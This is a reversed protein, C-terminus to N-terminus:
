PAAIGVEGVVQYSRAANPARWTVIVVLTVLLPSTGCASTSVTPYASISYATGGVNVTTVHPVLPAEPSTTGCAAIAAGTAKLYYTTSLGVLVCSVNSDSCLPDATPDLGNQLSDFPLAEAEYVATSILSTAVTHQRAVLAASMTNTVALQTSALVGSLIAMSVIVEVLSMGADPQAPGDCRGTRVQRLRQWIAARRAMHRVDDLSTRANRAYNVVILSRPDM